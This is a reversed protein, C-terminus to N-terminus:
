RAVEDEEEDETGDERGVGRGREERWRRDVGGRGEEGVARVGRVVVGTAKAGKGARMLWSGWRIAAEGEDQARWLEYVAELVLEDRETGGGAVAEFVTGWVKGTPLYREAIRRLGKIRGTVSERDDRGHQEQGIEDRGSQGHAVGIKTGYRMLLAEHVGMLTADRMSEKLIGQIGFVTYNDSAVM